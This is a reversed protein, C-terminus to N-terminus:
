LQICSQTKSSKKHRPQLTFVVGFSIVPLRLRCAFGFGYRYLLLWELMSWDAKSITVLIWM